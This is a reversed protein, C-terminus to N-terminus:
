LVLIPPIWTALWFSTSQHVLFYLNYVFPHFDVRRTSSSFLSIDSPLITGMLSSSLLLPFFFILPSPMKLTLTSFVFNLIQYPASSLQTLAPRFPHTAPYLLLNKSNFPCPFGSSSYQISQGCIFSYDTMSPYPTFLFIASISHPSSTKGVFLQIM